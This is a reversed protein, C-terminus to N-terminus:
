ENPNVLHILVKDDSTPILIRHIEYGDNTQKIAGKKKLRMIYTNLTSFDDRGLSEAVQKKSETSFPNIDVDSNDITLKARLFETLIRIESDTLGFIGNWLEIYDSLEKIPVKIQKM